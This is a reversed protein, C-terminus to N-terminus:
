IKTNITINKNWNQNGGVFDPRVIKARNLTLDNNCIRIYIGELLGDYFSSQQKTLAEFDSLSKILPFLQPVQKISTNKLRETLKNRSVFTNNKTNYIDYALFYDPLKTYNISHKMYLWEGYLIEIGPELILILESTHQAIWKDLLKFQPHYNSNVFHSRNQVKVKYDYTVLIGLNAGDVKEEIIINSKLAESVFMDQEYNTCLLDDRTASKYNILHKTRPFKIVKDIDLQYDNALGVIADKHIQTM